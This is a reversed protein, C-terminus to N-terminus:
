RSDERGVNGGETSRTIQVLEPDPDRQNVKGMIWSVQRKVENIRLQYLQERCEVYTDFALLAVRDIQADLEALELPFEPDAAAGGLEARVVEKLRLVFGLAQSPAFQQIARIKVMEHLHRRLEQTDAGDLLADLIAETGVRLAHGVPNAFRDMQRAFLAASNGPYTALVEELWRRAIAERKDHLLKRLRM